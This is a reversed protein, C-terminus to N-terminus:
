EVRDGKDSEFLDSLADNLRVYGESIAKDFDVIVLASNEMLQQCEESSHAYFNAVKEFDFVTHRYAASFLFAKEDASLSSNEIENILEKTKEGNYIDEINPKEDSPEYIPADVKQTYQEESMSPESEGELATLGILFDDDFGLLDIDFDVNTLSEVEDKLIDFDWGANLALQNDAIVYAKKQEESLGELIVCPVSLMDLRKAATVRCHGAIITDEEDILVPNTFGFEKISRCVQEIQAPSHTRSNAEYDILSSVDKIVHRYHDTM